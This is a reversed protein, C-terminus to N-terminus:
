NPLKIQEKPVYFKKKANLPDNAKTLVKKLKHNFESRPMMVIRSCGMCELKIDAGLRLIEWDNSKCAHAKKMQVTDALSYEDTKNM